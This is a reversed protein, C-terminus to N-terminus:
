LLRMSLINRVSADADATSNQAIGSSNEDQEVFFFVGKRRAYWAVTVRKLM